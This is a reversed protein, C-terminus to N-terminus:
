NKEKYGEKLLSEKSAKFSIKDGSGTFEEPFAQRLKSVDAKTYDVSLTQTLIGDKIELSATVGDIATYKDNIAQVEKKADAESVGLKKLDYTNTATQKTVLDNKYYYTLVSTMGNQSNEFTATEEKSCGLLVFLATFFVALLKFSKKM